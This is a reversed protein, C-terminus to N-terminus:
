EIFVRETFEKERTIISLIYIGKKLDSTEIRLLDNKNNESYYVMERRNSYLIVNYGEALEEQTLQPTIEFYSTAPNPAIVIAPAPGPDPLCPAHPPCDDGGGGGIGGGGSGPIIVTLGTYGTGSNGCIGQPYCRIQYTGPTASTWVKLVPGNRDFGSLFSFGAPLVWNYSTAGPVNEVQIFNLSEPQLNIPDTDRYGWVYVDSYHAQKPPGVWINYRKTINGCATNISAQVWGNGRITTSSARVRYNTTGQGSVYLLNSSHTWSVSAGSPLNNLGYTTGTSCATSSGSISPPNTPSSLNLAISKTSASTQLGCINAKVTVTGGSVGNPVLTITNSNNLGQVQWNSPYTWTYSTAGAISTISYQIPSTDSCVVNDPGSIDSIQPLTRTITKVTSWNTYFPGANNIGRVRINGESCSNPKVTIKKTSGGSVITWGSPIQWEYSDVYKPNVDNSGINPYRIPQIEYVQNATSNVPIQSNGSIAPPNVGKLSLIPIDFIQNDNGSANDCNEAAIQISGTQNKDVEFWRIRVLLMNYGSITSTSGTQSGFEIEGNTVTWEYYCTPIPNAQNNISYQIWEGPNVAFTIDPGVIEIQGYNKSYTLLLLTTLLTLLLLKNKM